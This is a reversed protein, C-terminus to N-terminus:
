QKNEPNMIETAHDALWGINNEFGDRELMEELEDKDIESLAKDQTEESKWFANASDAVGWFTAESEDGSVEVVFLDNIVLHASYSHKVEYDGDESTQIKEAYDFLQIDTIEYKM